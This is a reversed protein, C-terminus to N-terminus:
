EPIEAEKQQFLSSRMKEFDESFEEKNLHPQIRPVMERCVLRGVQSKECLTDPLTAPGLIVLLIMGIFAVLIGRIVGLTLGYTRDSRESMQTKLITALLKSLLIFILIFLVVMGALALWMVYVKDLGHFLAVMHNYIAPYAFFLFIGFLVFTIVQAIQGSFGKQFGGMASFLVVVVFAVDIFSLWEPIMLDVEM